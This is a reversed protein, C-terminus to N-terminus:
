KEMSAVFRELPAQSVRILGRTPQDFDLIVYIVLAFIVVIFLPGLRQPTGVAGHRWGTLGISTIATMLLLLVVVTPLRDEFASVRAAQTSTLENLSTTLSFTFPSASDGAQRVLDSMTNTYETAQQLDHKFTPGYVDRRANVLLQGYSRIVGQLENRLPEPLLGASTYFDGIANSEAVVMQRRHDHKQLAMGFGFALLLAFLALSADGLKEAPPERGVVKHRQGVWWGVGWACAMAVVVASATAWAHIQDFFNVPSMGLNRM